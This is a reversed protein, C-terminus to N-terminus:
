TGAQAKHSTCPPLSLCSPYASPPGSPRPELPVLSCNRPLEGVETVDNKNLNRLSALATDLAPLAEDLDKQADDAIAQAKRAKENAKVEEAQVSNRTEEAIATDVQPTSAPLAGRTALTLFLHPRRGKTRRMETERPPLSHPNPHGMRWLGERSHCATSLQPM